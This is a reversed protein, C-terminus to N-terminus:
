RKVRLNDNLYWKRKNLNNQGMPTVEGRTHIEIIM